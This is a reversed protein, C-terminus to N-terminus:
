RRVGFPSGANAEMAVTQLWLANQLGQVREHRRVMPSATSFRNRESPRRKSSRAEGTGLCVALARKDDVGVRWGAGGSALSVAIAGGRPLRARQGVVGAGWKWLARM